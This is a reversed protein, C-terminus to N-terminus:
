RRYRLQAEVGTMRLRWQCLDNSVAYAQAIQEMSQGRSRCRLLAARPLLLAGMLWDAEDEQEDSYDSLLLMGTSSLQVRAPVHCLRIHSLEHMLTSCQRERVQASNLVIMTKGAHGLTLGSWSDPDVKLLQRAHEAALDLTDAGVVAVQLFDAYRWPDLPDIAQLGLGRRAEEAFKEAKSKFGRQM